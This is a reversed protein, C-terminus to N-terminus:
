YMLHGGQVAFVLLQYGDRLVAVPDSAFNSGADSWATWNGSADRYKMYLHNDKGRAFLEISGNGWSVATPKGVMAISSDYHSANNWSQGDFTRVMFMTGNEMAAALQQGGLDVLAINSAAETVVPIWNTSLPLPVHDVPASASGSCVVGHLDNYINGNMQGTSYGRQQCFVFAARAAQGLGHRQRSLGLRDRRPRCRAREDM